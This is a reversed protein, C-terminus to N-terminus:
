GVADVVMRKRGGEGNLKAYFYGGELELRKGQSETGAAVVVDRLLGESGAVYYVMGAVTRPDVPMHPWTVCMSAVLVVVMAGLIALSTYTCVLHTDWTLTLSYPVNALFAPLLEGALAMLAAALLLWQGQCFSSYAGTFPNTPPPNCIAKAETNKGKGRFFRSGSSSTPSDSLSRFPTMAGLSLFFSSWFIAFLSGLGAFLFKVGFTQSDMFLEFPTNDRLLHYYTLLAMLALLLLIFLARVSYTLTPFPIHRRSPTPHHATTIRSFTTSFTAGLKGFTPSADLEVPMPTSSDWHPVIALAKQHGRYIQYKEDEAGHIDALPSNELHFRGHRFIEALDAESFEMHSPTQALRNRLHPDRSLLAIDAISWPNRHVGTDWRHLLAALIVLLVLMIVMVAILARTPWPSVGLALACGSISLHSCVGHVKFGIAETALPAMLWSLWMLLGALFPIPQGQLLHRFPIVINDIGVYRLMMSDPGAAGGPTSLARFPQFLKVNLEIVALPFAIFAALLPPLFTGAFYQVHSIGAYVHTGNNSITEEADNPQEVNTSDNKRIEPTVTPTLMLTLSISTPTGNITTVFATTVPILTMSMTTLSGSVTTPFVKVVPRLPTAVRTITTEVGGVVSVVMETTPTGLAAEPTVVAVLTVILGSAATVVTEPPRTQVITILSADVTTLVTQPPPTSVLTFVVGDTTGMVTVEPLTTLTTVVFAEVVSITTEPPPTTVITTPSADLTTIVTHIEPPSEALSAAPNKFQPALPIGPPPGPKGAPLKKREPQREGTIAPPTIAPPATAVTTPEDGVKAFASPEQVLGETSTTANVPYASDPYSSETRTLSIQIPHAAANLGAPRFGAGSLKTPAVITTLCPETRPAGIGVCTLVMTDNRFRLDSSNQRRQLGAAAIQNGPGDYNGAQFPFTRRMKSMQRGDVFASNDSDPLMAQLLVITVIASALLVMQAVLFPWKLPIPKYRGRSPTTLATGTAHQQWFTAMKPFWATGTSTSLLPLHCHPSNRCKTQRGPKTSTTHPADIMDAALPFPYAPQLGVTIWDPRQESLNSRGEARAPLGNDAEGSQNAWAKFQDKLKGVAGV